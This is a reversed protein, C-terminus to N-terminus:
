HNWMHHMVGYDFQHIVMVLDDVHRAGWTPGYLFQTIRAMWEDEFYMCMLCAGLPSTIAGIGLAERQQRLINGVKFVMDTMEGSKVGHVRWTSIWIM